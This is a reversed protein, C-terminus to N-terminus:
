RVISQLIDKQLVQLDVLGKVIQQKKWIQEKKALGLSQYSSIKDVISQINKPEFTIFNKFISDSSDQDYSSFMINQSSLFMNWFSTRRITMGDIDPIIAIETKSLVSKFEDSVPDIDGYITVKHNLRSTLFKLWTTQYTEIGEKLNGYDMLLKFDGLVHLHYNIRSTKLLDLAQLLYEIGNKPQVFGHFAIHLTEDSSSLLPKTRLPYTDIVVGLFLISSKKSILKYTFNLASELQKRDSFFVKDAVLAAMSYKIKGLTTYNSFEHLMVQLQMKPFRFNIILALFVTFPSRGLELSNYQINVVEPDSKKILRLIQFVNRFKLDVYNVKYDLDKRENLKQLRQHKNAILQVQHGNSLSINILKHTFKGVGCKTPGSSGSIFLINAM